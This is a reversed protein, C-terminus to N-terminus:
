IKEKNSELAMETIEAKQNTPPSQSTKASALAHKIVLVAATTYVAASLFAFVTAVYGLKATDGMSMGSILQDNLVLVAALLMVTAVFALIAPALSLFCIPKPLKKIIVLVLVPFGALLSLGIMVAAAIAVKQIVRVTDASIYGTSDSDVCANTNLFTTSTGLFTTVTTTTDINYCTTYLGINATAVAVVTAPNGLYTTSVTTSYAYYIWNGELLSKIGTGLSVTMFAIGCSVLVITLIHLKDM